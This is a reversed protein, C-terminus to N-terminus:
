GNDDNDTLIDALPSEHQAIRSEARRQRQTDNWSFRLWDPWQATRRGYIKECASCIAFRYTIRKGCGALCKHQENYGTM